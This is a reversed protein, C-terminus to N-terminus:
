GGGGTTGAPDTPELLGQLGAPVQVWAASVNIAQEPAFDGLGKLAQVGLGGRKYADDPCDLGAEVAVVAKSRMRDRWATSVSPDPRKVFPKVTVCLAHVTNRHVGFDKAVSIQSRGSAVSAIIAQRQLETLYRGQKCQASSQSSESAESM